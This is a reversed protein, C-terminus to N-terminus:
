FMDSVMQFIEHDRWSVLEIGLEAAIPDLFILGLDSDVYISKPIYKKQELAKKFLKQFDEKVNKPKIPDFSIIQGDSEDAWLCLFPFFPREGPKDQTPEPYYKLSLLLTKNTKKFSDRISDIFGPEPIYEMDNPKMEPTPLTTLSWALEGGSKKPTFALLEEDDYRTPLVNGQEVLHALHVAQELCHTMFVADQDTLYWPYQSPDMRRFSFNKTGKVHRHGLDKYLKKDVDSLYEPEVLNFILSQQSYMFMPESMENLDQFIMDLYGKFGTDGIYVSLGYAQRANGLIVCWGIIGNEPNQVGFVYSDNISKWPKAEVYVRAAEFLKRWIGENQTNIIQIM